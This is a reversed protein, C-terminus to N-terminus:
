EAAVAERINRTASAELELALEKGGTERHPRAVACARHRARYLRAPASLAHDRDLRTRRACGTVGDAVIKWRTSTPARFRDRRAGRARSLCRWRCIENRSRRAARSAVNVGRRLMDMNISLKGAQERVRKMFMPPQDTRSRRAEQRQANLATRLFTRTAVGPIEIPYQFALVRGERRARGDDRARERERVSDGTPSKTTLRAPSCMPSRRSARDTQAMFPTCGRGQEGGTSPWNLITKGDIEVHLNKIELLPM